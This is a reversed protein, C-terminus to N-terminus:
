DKFEVRNKEFRDITIKVDDKLYFIVRHKPYYEDIFLERKGQFNDGMCYNLAAKIKDDIKSIQLIIEDASWVLDSALKMAAEVDGDKRLKEFAYKAIVRKSENITKIM